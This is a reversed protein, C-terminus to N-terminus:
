EVRKEPSNLRGFIERDVGLVGADAVSSFATIVSNLVDTNLPRESVRTGEIVTNIRSPFEGGFILISSHKDAISPKRAGSFKSLYAEIRGGNGYRWNKRYANLNKENRQLDVHVIRAISDDKSELGIINDALRTNHILVNTREGVSVGKDGSKTITMGTIVVRSSMLDIGDNLSGVINGSDFFVTSADIDVADSFASEVTLNRIVANDVYVLHLTDDEVFNQGLVVDTLRINATNHLSLMGTYPIAEINDGSGGSMRIHKLHSGVTRRGQLAVVGWANSTNMGRGIFRIPRDPTGLAKVKGRFILSAGPALRITTGPLIEVPRRLIQDSEVTVDGSWVLTKPTIERTVPLNLVHPPFGPNKVQEATVWEGSFKNLGKVSVVELEKPLRFEFRTPQLSLTGIRYGNSRPQFTEIRNAYLATRLTVKNGQVVTPIDLGPFDRSQIKVSNVGELHRVTLEIQDVGNQDEVVIDIHGRRLRWSVKPPRRISTHLWEQMMELQRIRQSISEANRNSAIEDRPVKSYHVLQLGHIDRQMTNEFKVKLRRLKSQVRQYVAKNEVMESLAHAKQDLFQSSYHFVRMLDHSAYDIPKPQLTPTNPFGLGIDHPVPLIQGRWVDSILRMNHVSSNHFSQVLVQYAAFNAWYSIPVRELLRDFKTPSVEAERILDFVFELDTRTEKPLRNYAALKTWFAANEFLSRDTGPILDANFQEGKYINVPMINRNRLFSEDLREIEVLAGRSDDNIFLEVPRSNPTLLGVSRAIEFAIHEDLQFRTQPSLYNFVRTGERLRSKRLKLRLSKKQFMWNLPNDGRYRINVRDLAGSDTLLFAPRYKKTSDPVDSMLAAESKGPLYLRVEPLGIEGSDTISRWFKMAYIEANYLPWNVPQIYVDRTSYGARWDRYIQASGAWLLAVLLATLPLLLFRRRFIM